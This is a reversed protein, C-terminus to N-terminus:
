SILTFHQTRISSLARGENEKEPKGLRSQFFVRFSEQLNKDRDIWPSGVNLTGATAEM